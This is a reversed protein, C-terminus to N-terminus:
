KTVVDFAQPEKALIIHKKFLACIGEYTIPEGDTQDRILRMADRFFAAERPEPFWSKVLSLSYGSCGTMIMDHHYCLRTRYAHAAWCHNLVEKYLECREPDASALHNRHHIMMAYVVVWILSEFDHFLGHQFTFDSKTRGDSYLRLAVLLGTAM